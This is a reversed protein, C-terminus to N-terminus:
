KDFAGGRKLTKFAKHTSVSQKELKSPAGKSGKNKKEEILQKMLEISKNHPM